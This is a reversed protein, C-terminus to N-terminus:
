AVELYVAIVAGNSQWVACATGPVITDPRQMGHPTGFEMPALPGDVLGALRGAILNVGEAVAEQLAGADPSASPQGLLRDLLSAAAAADMALALRYRVGAAMLRVDAGIGSAQVRQDAGVMQLSLGLCAGLVDHVAVRIYPLYAMASVTM